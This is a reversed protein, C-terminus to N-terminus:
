IGQRESSRIEKNTKPNAFMSIKLEQLKKESIVTSALHTM